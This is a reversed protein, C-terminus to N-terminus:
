LARPWAGRWAGGGRGEQGREEQGRGPVLSGVARREGRAVGRAMRRAGPVNHM